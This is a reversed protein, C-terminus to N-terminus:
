PPAAIGPALAGAAATVGLRWPLTRREDFLAMTALLVLTDLSPEPYGPLWQALLTLVLATFAWRDGDLLRDWFLLAVPLLCVEFMVHPHDAAARAMGTFIGAFAVMVAALSAPLSCGGRVALHITSWALVAAHLAYLVQMAVWPDLLLNALVVPAYLVSGQATGLLPLGCYEWRNWLPLRGALVTSAVLRHKGLYMGYLDDGGVRVAIGGHVAVLASAVITLGLAAAELRHERLSQRMGKTMDDPRGCTGFPRWAT